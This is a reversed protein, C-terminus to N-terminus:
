QFMSSQHSLTFSSAIMNLMECEFSDICFYESTFIIMSCCVEPNLDNVKEIADEVNGCQVAKKVAM